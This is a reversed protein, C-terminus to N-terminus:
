YVQLVVEFSEEPKPKLLFQCIKIIACQTLRSDM